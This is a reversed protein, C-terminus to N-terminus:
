DVIKPFPNIYEYDEIKKSEDIKGTNIDFLLSYNMDPDFSNEDGWSVFEIEYDDELEWEKIEEDM